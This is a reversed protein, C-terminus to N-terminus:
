PRLDLTASSSPWQLCDFCSSSVGELPVVVIEDRGERCWKKVQWLGNILVSADLVVVDADKEKRQVKRMHAEGYRNGLGGEDRRANRNLIKPGGGGEVTSEGEREREGGSM